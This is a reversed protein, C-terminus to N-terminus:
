AANPDYKRRVEEVTLRKAPESVDYRKGSYEYSFQVPCETGFNSELTIVPPSIVWKTPAVEHTQELAQSERGLACQLVKITLPASSTNIFYLELVHPVIGNVYADNLDNAFPGKHIHGPPVRELGITVVARALIKRDDSRHEVECYPSYLLQTGDPKTWVMLGNALRKARWPLLRNLVEALLGM